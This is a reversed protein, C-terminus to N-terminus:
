KWEEPFVVHIPELSYNSDLRNVEKSLNELESNFQSVDFSLTAMHPDRKIEWSIRTADIVVQVGDWGGDDAVGCACTFLLYKGSAQSSRILEDYVMFSDVFDEKDFLSKGDVIPNIFAMNKFSIDDRLISADGVRELIFQIHNMRQGFADM